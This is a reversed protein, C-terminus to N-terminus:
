GAPELGPPIWAHGNFLDRLADLKSLGWKAATTSPYSQVIAFDALGQLTRWLRRRLGDCRTPDARPLGGRLTRAEGRREAVQAGTIREDHDPLEVPEAAEDLVHQSDGIVEVLAADADPDEGALQGAAVRRGALALEEERHHGGGGLQLAVDDVLPGHGAQGSSADLSAAAALGVTISSSL